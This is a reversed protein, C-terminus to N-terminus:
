KVELQDDVDTVGAIQRARAEISAREQASNVPGRLTPNRPESASCAAAGIACVLLLSRMPDLRELTTEDAARLLDEALPSAVLIAAVPPEPGTSGHPSSASEHRRVVPRASLARGQPWPM